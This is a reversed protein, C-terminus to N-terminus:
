ALAARAPARARAPAERADTESLLAPILDTQSVIGVLRGDTDVVPLHHLGAESMRPVLAAVPTDPGVPEVASM